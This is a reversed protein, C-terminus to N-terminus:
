LKKDPFRGKKKVEEQLTEGELEGSCQLNFWVTSYKEVVCTHHLKFIGVTPGVVLLQTTQAKCITGGVPNPDKHVGARLQYFGKIDETITAEEDDM